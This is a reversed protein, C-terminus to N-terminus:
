IKWGCNYLFKIMKKKIGKKGYITLNETNADLDHLFQLGQFLDTTGIWIIIINAERTSFPLRQLM